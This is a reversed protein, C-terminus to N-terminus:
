KDEINGWFAVIKNCMIQPNKENEIFRKAKLGIKSREDKNLECISVIKKALDEDTESDPYQIYRGYEEPECPLKHAIYPKGSALCELTKSPFSYKVFIADSKRPSILATAAHQYAIVENPSLFGLYRIRNNKEAYEKVIKEGDGVGSIYLYYNDFEILQFARLMHEIGYELKLSGAYFIIKKNTEWNDTEILKGVIEHSEYFGEVITFDNNRLKLAQQMMPALLVYKDFKTQMIEQQKELYNQWVRRFGKSTVKLGYKGYLDGVVNCTVIFPYRKKMSLVAKSQIFHTNFVLLVIDENENRSIAKRLKRKLRLYQSIYNFIPLNVYQIDVGITKQKKHISIPAEKVFLKKDYPFTRIRQTNFVELDINNEVLGNILNCQFKHGSISKPSKTNSIDAELNSFLM